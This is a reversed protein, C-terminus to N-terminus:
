DVHGTTIIRRLQFREDPTVLVFTTAFNQQIEESWRGIPFVPHLAEIAPNLRRGEWNLQGALQLVNHTCPQELWLRAVEVADARTDRGTVADFALFMANKPRVSLISRGLAATTEAYDLHRLEAVAEELLGRNVGRFSECLDDFDVDNSLGTDNTRLLHLAVDLALDSLRASPALM